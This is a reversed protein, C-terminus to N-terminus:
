SGTVVISHAGASLALSIRAYGGTTTLGAGNIAVAGSGDVNYTWSLAPNLDALHLETTTAVATYAVTFAGASRLRASDLIAKHAIDYAPNSLVTSTTGNFCALIDNQGTTVVHACEANSNTILTPTTPTSSGVQLVHLYTHFTGMTTPWIKLLKRNYGAGDAEYYPSGASASGSPNIQTNHFGCRHGTSLNQAFTTALDYVTRTAVAPLLSTLKASQSNIPTTWTFVNSAVTPDVPIHWLWEQKAHQQTYFKRDNHICDNLVPYRLLDTSDNVIDDVSARDHIIVTSVTGPVHLTARSGENVMVPPKGLGTFTSEVVTGGTTEAMYAHTDALSKQRIQKYEFLDSYGNYRMVNNGEGHNSAGAYSAIFDMIWEGNKYLKPTCGHFTRHDTKFTAYSATFFHYPECRNFFLSDTDTFGSKLYQTGMGSAFHFKTTKWDAVTAYPNYVFWGWWKSQPGIAAETHETAMDLLLQHAKDGTATGQLMGALTAMVEGIKYKALIEPDQEDAFQVHKQLDPTFSMFRVNAAQTMWVAIEPYTDIGRGDSVAQGMVYYPLTELGYAPGELYEGGAGIVSVYFCVGDRTTQTPPVTTCGATSTFGGMQPDDWIANNSVNNPLIVKMMAVPFHWMGITQDPDGVRGAGAGYTWWAWDRRWDIWEVMEERQPDTLAPWAWELMLPYMGGTIRDIDALGVLNTNNILRATVKAWLGYTANTIYVSDGTLQYMWANWQGYHTGGASAPTLAVARAQKFIRGGYTSPTGSCTGASADASGVGCTTEYDTVMQNWVEQRACTWLLLPNRGTPSDDASDGCAAKGAALDLDGNTPAAQTTFSWVDGTTTSTINTARGRWYYTTANALDPLAHSCSTTNALTLEDVPPNVDDFFIEYTLADTSSCALEQGIVPVNTAGHTPSEGTLLITGPATSPAFPVPLIPSELIRGILVVVDRCTSGGSSGLVLTGVSQVAAADFDRDLVTENDIEWVFNQERINYNFYHTYAQNVNVPTAWTTTLAGSETPIDLAFQLTGGNNVIKMYYAIPTDPHDFDLPSVGKTVALSCFTGAAMASSAIYFDVRSTYGTRNDLNTYGRLAAGTTPATGIVFALAKGQWSHPIGPIGDTDFDPSIGNGPSVLYSTSYIGGGRGGGALNGVQASPTVVGCLLILGILLRRM